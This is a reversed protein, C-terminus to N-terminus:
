GSHPQTPIKLSENMSGSRYGTLDVTVYKFGIQRLKTDIKNRVDAHCLESIRDVPVEIRAITEHHRVRLQDFGMEHLFNEAEELMTLKKQTIESGYPFRSGLCAVAPKNWSSLGMKKSLRRIEQKGLGAEMLPSQVGLEGVAILGPRHDSLDDANSGDLVCHFGKDKAIRQLESFLERKCYYCRDVPNSKYEPIALESTKIVQHAAGIERILKLAQDYESKAYTESQATVALVNSGLVDYAVKLLFASDIGGSFAVIASQMDKLNTKLRNLKTNM